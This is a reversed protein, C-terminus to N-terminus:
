EVTCTYGSNENSLRSQKLSIYESDREGENLLGAEMLEQDDAIEFDIRLTIEVHDDVMTGTAEVGKVDYLSQLTQNIKDQIAQADLDERIGLEAFSMTFKQTMTQIRDGKAEYILTNTEDTCTMTVPSTDEQQTDREKRSNETHFDSLRACGCLMTILLLIGAKKM